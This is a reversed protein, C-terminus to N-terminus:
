SNYCKFKPKWRGARIEWVSLSYKFWVAIFFDVLGFCLLRLLSCCSWVWLWVFFSLFQLAYPNKKKLIDCLIFFSYPQITLWLLLLIGSTKPPRFDKLSNEKLHKETHVTLLMQYSFVAWFFQEQPFSELKQFCWPWIWCTCLCSSGKQVVQLPLRHHEWSQELPKTKILYDEYLGNLM